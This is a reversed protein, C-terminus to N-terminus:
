PKNNGTQAAFPRRLLHNVKSAATLTIVHPLQNPKRNNGLFQGPAESKAAIDHVIVSMHTM